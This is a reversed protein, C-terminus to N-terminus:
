AAYDLLTVAGPFRGIDSVGARGNRLAVGKPPALNRRQLPCRASDPPARLILAFASPVIKLRSTRRRNPKGPLGSGPSCDLTTLRSVISRQWQPPCGVDDKHEDPVWKAQNHPFSSRVLEVCHPQTATQGIPSITGTTVAFVPDRAKRSELIPCGAYM